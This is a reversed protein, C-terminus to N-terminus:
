LRVPKSNYRGSEYIATVLEVAKRAEQGNVFPERVDLVSDVFDAIVKEHGMDLSPIPTGPPVKTKGKQVKAQADIISQLRTKTDHTPKKLDCRNLENSSFAITGESGFIEIYQPLEPYALTTGEIVGRAGNRLKVLSLALTEVEIDHAKTEMVGIVEEIDVMFWILLDILNSGQNMLCGGGDIAWTGRWGGSDYYEQTRYRKTYVSGSYLKGLSGANLLETLGKVLLTFRHQFVGGLKVRYEEGVAIIKDVRKTSHNRKLLSWNATKGVRM